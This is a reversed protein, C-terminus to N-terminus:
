GKRHRASLNCLRRYTGVCVCGTAYVVPITAVTRIPHNVRGWAIRRKVSWYHGSRGMPNRFIAQLVAGTSALGAGVVAAVLLRPLRIDGLVVQDTGSGGHLFSWIDSPIRAMPIMIPGISLELMAAIGLAIGLTVFAWRIRSTSM